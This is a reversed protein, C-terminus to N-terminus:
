FDIHIAFWTDTRCEGNNEVVYSGAGRLEEFCATSSARLNSQADILRIRAFENVEINFSKKNALLEGRAENNDIRRSGAGFM